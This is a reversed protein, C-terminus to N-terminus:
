LGPIPSEPVAAPAVPAETRSGGGGDNLKVEVPGQKAIKSINVKIVEIDQSITKLSTTINQNIAGLMKNMERLEHLVLDGQSPPSEEKIEDDAMDNEEYSNVMM